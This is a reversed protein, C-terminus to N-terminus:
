SDIKKIFIRYVGGYGFVSSFFELIIGLPFIFLLFLILIRNRNYKLVSFLNKRYGFCCLIAQVMGLVGNSFSFYEYKLIKGNFYRILEELRESKFHNLHRPMDLHMWHMGAIKSQLSNYNPVEIVLVGNHNLNHKVFENLLEKPRDIHELVHIFTVADVMNTDIKGTTYDETIVPINYKERCYKARSIATELGIPKWGKKIANYLFRGKGCGFDLLYGKNPLYRNIKNIILLCETDLLFDIFKNTKSKINYDVGEYYSALDIEKEFYTYYHGCDKCSVLNYPLQLFYIFTKCSSKCIPCSKNKM